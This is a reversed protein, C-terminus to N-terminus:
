RNRDCLIKSRFVAARVFFLQVFLHHKRPTKVLRQILGAVQSCETCSIATGM